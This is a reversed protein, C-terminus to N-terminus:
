SRYAPANLTLRSIASVAAPYTSESQHLAAVPRSVIRLPLVRVDMASFCATSLIPGAFGHYRVCVDEEYVEAAALRSLPIGDTEFHLDAKCFIVCPNLRIAIM